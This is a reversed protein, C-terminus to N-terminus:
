PSYAGLAHQIARDIEPASHTRRQYQEWCKSKRWIIWAATVGVGNPTCTSAVSIEREEYVSVGMGSCGGNFSMSRLRAGLTSAPAFENIIEEVIKSSMTAISYSTSSILKRPEIQMRCAQGNEDFAVILIINPRVLYSGDEQVPYKQKLEDSTQAEVSLCVLLPTLLMIMRWFVLM